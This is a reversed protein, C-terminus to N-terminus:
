GQELEHDVNSLPASEDCVNKYDDKAQLTASKECVNRYDDKAQLMRDFM